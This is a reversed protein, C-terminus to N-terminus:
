IKLIPWFCQTRALLATPQEWCVSQTLSFSFFCRHLLFRFRYVEQFIHILKKGSYHSKVVQFNYIIAFYLALLQQLFFATMWLHETLSTNKFIKCSECSFRQALTEKKIFVKKISCRHHSGKTSNSVLRQFWCFKMDM